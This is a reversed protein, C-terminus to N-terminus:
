LGFGRVCMSEKFGFGSLQRCCTLTCPLSFCEFHGAPLRGPLREGGTTVRCGRISPPCGSRTFTGEGGPVNARERDPQLPRHSLGELGIPLSVREMELYHDLEFDSMTNPCFVMLRNVMNKIMNEFVNIGRHYRPRNKLKACEKFLTNDHCDNFQEHANPNNRPNIRRNIRVTMLTTTMISLKRKTFVILMSTMRNMKRIRRLFAKSNIRRNKRRAIRGTGLNRTNRTRFIRPGKRNMRLNRLTEKIASLCLTVTRILMAAERRTANSLKLRAREHLIVATDRM